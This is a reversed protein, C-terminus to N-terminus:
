SEQGTMMVSQHRSTQAPASLRPRTMLGIYSPRDGFTIFGRDAWFRGSNQPTMKPVADLQGSHGAGHFGVNWATRRDCNTNRQPLSHDRIPRWRVLRDCWRSGRSGEPAEDIPWFLLHLMFASPKPNNSTVM